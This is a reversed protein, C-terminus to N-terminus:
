GRKVTVHVHNRHNANDSGRNGMRRWGESNRDINWIRSDFIVYHIGLESRHARLFRAIRWGLANNARYNPLMIDVARGERHDPRRSARVGYMVKIQPFEARMKAVIRKARPRLGNLGKSGNINLTRKSYAMPNRKSLYKATVWYTAGRYIVQARGSRVKGTIRLGTGPPVETITRAKSGYSTRIDLATVTYRTGITRPTPKPRPHQGSNLKRTYRKTVWAVRGRWVIQTRLGKVVGTSSMISGRPIDRYRSTTANPTARVLLPATARLRVKTKPLKASPRSGSGLYRTAAWLNKGRYTIATYQGKAVHRSGIRTGAPVTFVRRYTLAPGTRLNLAVTTTLASAKRKSSGGALYKSYIYAPRNHFWVKTWGKSSPAAQTLSQGKRLVGLIGTNPSAGSRINVATTAVALGGTRSTAATELYRAAIYATRGRYRVKAWGKSTPGIQPVTEGPRLIGIRANQMSPGTRINVSTTAALVGKSAVATPPLGVGTITLSVATLTAAAALARLAAKLNFM